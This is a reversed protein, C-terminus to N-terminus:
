GLGVSSWSDAAKFKSLESHAEKLLDSAERLSVRLESLESRLLDNAKLLDDRTLKGTPKM